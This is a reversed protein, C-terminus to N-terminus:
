VHFSEGVSVLDRELLFAIGAIFLRFRLEGGLLPSGPLPSTVRHILHDPRCRSRAHASCDQPIEHVLRISLRRLFRFLTRRPNLGWLWHVPAVEKRSHFPSRCGSSQRRLYGSVDHHPTGN